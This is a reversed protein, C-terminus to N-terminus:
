VATALTTRLGVSSKQVVQLTFMVLNVVSLLSDLTEPPSRSLECDKWHGQSRVHLDWCLEKGTEELQLELHRVKRWIPQRDFIATLDTPKWWTYSESRWLVATEGRLPGGSMVTLHNRLAPPHIAGDIPMIQANLQPNTNVCM